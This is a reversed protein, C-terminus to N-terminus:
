RILLLNGKATNMLTENIYRYRLIYVYGGAPADAGRVKGDWGRWKDMSSFILQGWRNYVDLRFDTVAEVRSIKFVDNVKDNNPTFVNPIKILCQGKSITVTDASVGCQNWVQVYYTGPQKVLYSSQSSSDQWLYNANNYGTELLITLDECIIRDPGLSFGPINTYAIKITDSASCGDKTVKVWYSGARSAIFTQNGSNDQWRYASGPNGADLILQAGNCLISDIGLNVVPLSTVSVTISDRVTCDQQTVDLWYIGAQSVQIYSTTAGTSWLYSSAPLSVSLNVVVRQCITTDKGLSFGAINKNTVDITDRFSCNYQDTLRLWYKGAQSVAVTGATSGTSWLYSTNAYTPNSSLTVSQNQCIIADNGLSFVPLGRETIEITDSAFCNDLSVSVWYKGADKITIAPNTSGTSWLVKSGPITTTLLLSDGTCVTTDGGLYVKFPGAYVSKYATDTACGNKYYIIAKATYHGQASYIHLPSVLNSYNGAGSAPDDFEWKVSDVDSIDELSFQINQFQCNGTAVVPDHFYSQIFAPLGASSVHDALLGTDLYIKAHEYNCAVGKIDPDNIVSLWGISGLAVYIKKDPGIQMGYGDYSGLPLTNGNTGSVLTRSSQIATETAKTVDYQYILCSDLGYYTSSTYLLRSNPSFEIGYAGLDIGTPKNAPQSLLKRPNSIGGTANNFDLLEIYDYYESHAAALRKGDPSSKLMGM